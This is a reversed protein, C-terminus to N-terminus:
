QCVSMLLLAVDERKVAEMQDRKVRVSQHVPGCLLQLIVSWIRIVDKETELQSFCFLLLQPQGKQPKLRVKGLFVAFTFLLIFLFFLSCCWGDGSEAAAEGNFSKSKESKGCLTQFEEGTENTKIDGKQDIQLGTATWTWSQNILNKTESNIFLFITVCFMIWVTSCKSEVSSILLNFFFIYKFDKQSSM